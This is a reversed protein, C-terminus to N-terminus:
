ISVGLSQMFILRTELPRMDYAPIPEDPLYATRLCLFAPGPEKLAKQLASRFADAGELNTALALGSARALGAYDVPAAPLPQGGSAEYVDNNFIVVILNTAGTSAVTSLCGANMLVAGDGELVVVRRAPQALAVGLGVPIAQGMSDALYFNEPRPRLAKWYRASAGLGCVVLEDVVLDALVQMYAVRSTRM